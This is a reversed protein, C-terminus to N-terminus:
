RTERGNGRWEDGDRARMRVKVSFLKIMAGDDVDARAPRRSGDRADGPVDADDDLPEVRSQEGM